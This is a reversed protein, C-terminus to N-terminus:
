DIFTVGVKVIVDDIRQNWKVEARMPALEGIKVIWNTGTKIFDPNEDKIILVLSAGTHSENEILAIYDTIMDPTTKNFKHYRETNTDILAIEMPEPYFRIHKRLGNQEM